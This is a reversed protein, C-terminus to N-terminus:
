LSSAAVEPTYSSRPTPPEKPFRAIVEYEEVALRGNADIIEARITVPENNYLCRVSRNIPFVVSYARVLELGNGVDRYPIRLPCSEPTIVDGNKDVLSLRTRPNEKALIDDPNGPDLGEIRLAVRIHYGGQGGAEVLADQGDQFASFEGYASGIEIRGEGAAATEIPWCAGEEETGAGEGCASGCVLVTGLLVRASLAKAFRM